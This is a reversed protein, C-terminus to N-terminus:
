QNKSELDQPHYRVSVLGYSYVGKPPHLPNISVVWKKDCPNIILVKDWHKPLGSIRALLNHFLDGHPDIVCVGHGARIDQMIWSEMLRSKGTGPQGIIYAHTQRQTTRLVPSSTFHDLSLFQMM